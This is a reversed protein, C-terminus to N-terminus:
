RRRRKSVLYLYDPLFFAPPQSSFIKGCKKKCFVSFLIAAAPRRFASATHARAVCIVSQKLFIGSNNEPTSNVVEGRACRVRFVSRWQKRPTRNVVEGRACGVGGGGCPRLAARVCVEAQPREDKVTIMDRNAPLQALRAIIFQQASPRHTVEISRCFPPPPLLSPSSPSSSHSLLSFLRFTLAM